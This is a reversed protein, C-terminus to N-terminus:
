ALGEYSVYCTGAGVASFIRGRAFTTEEVEGKAKKYFEEMTNAVRSQYEKKTEHATRSVLNFYM